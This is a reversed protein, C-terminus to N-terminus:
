EFSGIPSGDPIKPVESKIYKAPDKQFQSIMRQFESYVETKDGKTKTNGLIRSIEGIKQNVIARAGVYLEDNTMLSFLEELFVSNVVNQLEEEYGPDYSKKFSGNIMEDLVNDLGLQKQDLSKQVLLRNVRDPHLLLSITFQSATAVAGYPDFALGLNSKFTERNRGFGMARPPFLDLLSMPLGIEKIDITRLVEKLANKQIESSLFKTKDLQNNKVAYSYDMGGVMKTVAETQYRHYFYIPVFVDELMTYPQGYKINDLSFREIAIKRVELVNKLEVAPDNGNDWLHAYGHASGQPRADSDSIYRFGKEFAGNLIEQLQLEENEEFSQYAYDVTVKDWGGIGTAYAESFDLQNNKVKVWPHPYDMVSSRENTSAAFNHSFGLTHGVEHASLQRIRALAMKM